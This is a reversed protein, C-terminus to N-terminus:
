DETLHFLGDLFLGWDCYRVWRLEQEFFDILYKSENGADYWKYYRDQVKEFKELYEKWFNTHWSGGGTHGKFYKGLPIVWYNM